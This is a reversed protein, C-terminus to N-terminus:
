DSNGNLAETVAKRLEPTELDQDVDYRGAMVQLAKRRAKGVKLQDNAMQTIEAMAGGVMQVDIDNEMDIQDSLDLFAAPSKAWGDALHAELEPHDITKPAETKHYVWVRM